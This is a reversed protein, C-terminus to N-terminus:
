LTKGFNEGKGIANVLLNSNPNLCLTLLHLHLEHHMNVLIIVLNNIPRWKLYHVDLSLVYRSIIKYIEIKCKRTKCKIRFKLITHIRNCTM